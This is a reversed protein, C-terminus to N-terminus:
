SKQSNLLFINSILVYALIGIEVQRIRSDTLDIDLSKQQKEEDASVKRDLVRSVVDLSRFACIKSSVPESWLANCSKIKDYFQSSVNCIKLLSDFMEYRLTSERKPGFQMMIEPSIMQNQEEEMKLLRAARSRTVIESRKLNEETIRLDRFLTDREKRLHQLKAKLNVITRSQKVIERAKEADLSLNGPQITVRDSEYVHRNVNTTLLSDEEDSWIESATIDDKEKEEEEIKSTATSRREFEFSAAVIRYQFKRGVASGTKIKCMKKLLTRNFRIEKITRTVSPVLHRQKRKLSEFRQTNFRHEAQAPILERKLIEIKQELLYGNDIWHRMAM